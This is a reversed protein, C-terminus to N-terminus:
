VKEMLGKARATRIYDQRIVDLMASRTYRMFSAASGMGLVIGPLIMHWLINLARVHWAAKRLSQDLMGFLPFLKLDYALFKILLLGFFFTPMSIGILSFVSFANDQLSYQKTASIIGAPIGIVLSIVLAFLSLIFSSWIFDGIVDVVPRKYFTSYGLNGQLLQEVWGLFQKYLPQDLGMKSRLEAKYEPSIKPDIMGTVPDGPASHILFFVAVVILVFVPILQFIRRILYNRM